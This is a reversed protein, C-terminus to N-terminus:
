PTGPLADLPSEPCGAPEVTYVFGDIKWGESTKILSFADV